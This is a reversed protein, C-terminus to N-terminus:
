AQSGDVPEARERLDQLFVAVTRGDYVTDILGTQRETETVNLIAGPAIHAIQMGTASHEVGM